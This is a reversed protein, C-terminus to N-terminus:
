GPPSAMLCKGSIAVPTKTLEELSNVLHLDQMTM